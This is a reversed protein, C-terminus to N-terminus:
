IGYMYNFIVSRPASELHVSFFSGINELQRIWHHPILTPSGPPSALLFFLILTSKPCHFSTYLAWKCSRNATKQASLTIPISVTRTFVVTRQIINLWMLPIFKAPRWKQNLQKIFETDFYPTATYNAHQVIMNTKVTRADLHRKNLNEM